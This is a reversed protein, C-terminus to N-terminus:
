NAGSATVSWWEVPPISSSGEAASRSERRWRGRATLMLIPVEGTRRIRRCVEHGDPGPIMLDLVILAPRNREFEALAADGGPAVRCVLGAAELNQRVLRAIRADDEVILVSPPM